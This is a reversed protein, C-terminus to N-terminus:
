EVIKWDIDAEGIKEIKEVGNDFIEKTIEIEDVKYNLSGNYISIYQFYRNEKVEEDKRIANKEM